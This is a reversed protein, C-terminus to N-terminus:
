KLDSITIKLAKNFWGHKEFLVKTAKTRSKPVVIVKAFRDLKSNSSLAVPHTFNGGKTPNTVTQAVPPVVGLAVPSQKAFCLEMGLSECYHPGFIGTQLGGGIM